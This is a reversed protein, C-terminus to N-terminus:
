VASAIRPALALAREVDEMTFALPKNSIHLVGVSPLPVSLLRLLHFAAVYEKRIGADGLAVNSVYPRGTAFVRASNSRRDFISVQHSATVEDDAGFAGPIMQLVNRKPDRVMVAVNAGGFLPGVLERLARSLDRLSHVSLVLEDLAGLTELREDLARPRRQLGFATAVQAAFSGILEANEFPEGARKLAILEGLRQGDLEVPARLVAGFERELYGDRRAALAAEIAGLEIAPLGEAAIVRPVREAPASVILLADSGLTRCAASTLGDFGVHAEGLPPALAAKM